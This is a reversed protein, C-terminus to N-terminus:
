LGTGYGIGYDDGYGGLTEPDSFPIESIREMGILNIIFSQHGRFHPAQNLLIQTDPSLDVKYVISSNDDRPYFLIINTSSKLIHRFLLIDNKSIYGSYDLSAAYYFGRKIKTINGNFLKKYIFDPSWIETLKQCRPLSLGINYISITSGNAPAGNSWNEVTLFDGGTESYSIIKGVTVQNSSNLGNIYYNILGTSQSLAALDVATHLQLVNSVVGEVTNTHISTTGIEIHPKGIGHVVYDAM